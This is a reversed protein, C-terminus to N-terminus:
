KVSDPNTTMAYAGFIQTLAKNYNTVPQPAIFIIDGPRLELQNALILRSPNSADLHYAIVTQEKQPRLLYIQSTDSTIPNFTQDSYLAESLTKRESPSLDYLRPNIVEGTIVVTEPRYPLSNIIIRDNPFLRIKKYKGEIIKRVSLRFVKNNRILEIQADQGKPLYVKASALIENIYIPSNTYSVEMINSLKNDSNGRKELQYNTIYIKKSKFESIFIEFEPNVEEKVLREYLLDEAKIQTQGELQIRGIGIITAFGDDNIYIKRTAIRKTLGTEDKTNIMQSITLEDGIGIKYPGPDNNLPIKENIAQNVSILKAARSLDGADVVRREYNDENAIKIIKATLPILKIKILEQGESRSIGRGEPLTQPVYITGCSSLFFIFPWFPIGLSKLKFIQIILGMSLMFDYSLKRNLVSIVVM